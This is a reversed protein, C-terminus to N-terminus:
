SSGHDVQCRAHEDGFKQRSDSQDTECSGADVHGWGPLELGGEREPCCDCRRGDDDHRQRSVPSGFRQDQATQGCCARYQGADVHKDSREAVHVRALTVTEDDAIGTDDSGEAGDGGHM